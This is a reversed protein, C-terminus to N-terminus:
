TPGRFENAAVALLDQQIRVGREIMDEEGVGPDDRHYRNIGIAVDDVHRRNARPDRELAPPKRHGAGLTM